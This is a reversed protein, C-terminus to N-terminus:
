SPRCLATLAQVVCGRLRQLGLAVLLSMAAGRVIIEPQVLLVAAPSNTPSVPSSGTVEQM